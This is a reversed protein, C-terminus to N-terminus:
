KTESTDTMTDYGSSEDPGVNKLANKAVSRVDYGKVNPKDTVASPSLFPIEFDKIPMNEVFYRERTPLTINAPYINGTAMVYDASDETDEVIRDVFKLIYQAASRLYRLEEKSGLAGALTLNESLVSPKNTQDLMRVTRLVHDRDHRAYQEENHQRRKDYTAAVDKLFGNEYM